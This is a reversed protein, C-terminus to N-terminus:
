FHKQKTKTQHRQMDIRTILTCCLPPNRGPIISNVLNDSGDPFGNLHRKYSKYKCGIIRGLRKSMEGVMPSGM